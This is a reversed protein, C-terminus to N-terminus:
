RVLEKVLEAPAPQKLGEIFSARPRYIPRFRRSCFYDPLYRPHSSCIGKLRLGTRDCKEGRAGCTGCSTSHTRLDDVLYVSGIQIDTEDRGRDICVVWDGAGIPASM